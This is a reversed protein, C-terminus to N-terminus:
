ASSTIQYNFYSLLCNWDLQVRKGKHMDTVNESVLTVNEQNLRSYLTQRFLNKQETFAFPCNGRTFYKCRQLSLHYDPLSRLKKIYVFVAEEKLLTNRYCSRTKPCSYQRQKAVACVAFCFTNLPINM